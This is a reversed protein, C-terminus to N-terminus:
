KIIRAEKIFKDMGMSDHIIFVIENDSIVAKGKGLEVRNEANYYDREQYQITYIEDEKINMNKLETQTHPIFEM